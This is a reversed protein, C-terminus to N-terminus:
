QSEIEHQRRLYARPDSEDEKVPAEFSGRIPQGTASRRLAVPPDTLTRRLPTEGDAVLAERQRGQARLVDPHIWDRNESRTVPATTIEAGARRGARMEQATLQSKSGGMRQKESTGAPMNEEAEKRRRATVDPDKPWQPGRAQLSGPEVPDRLEMQRPLVLPPRERYVIPDRDEPLLGISGLFNKMLVGEQAQAGTAALSLLGAGLVLGLRVIGIGKM